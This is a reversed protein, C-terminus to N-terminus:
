RRHRGWPRQGAHVLRKRSDQIGQRDGAQHENPPRRWQRRQAQPCPLPRDLLNLFPLQSAHCSAHIPHHIRPLERPTAQHEVQPGESPVDEAADLLRQPRDEGQEGQHPRPAASQEHQQRAVGHLVQSRVERSKRAHAHLQLRRDGGHAGGGRSPQLTHHLRTDVLLGELRDHFPLHIRLTGVSAIGVHQISGESPDRVNDAASAAAARCAAQSHQIDAAAVPVHGLPPRGRPVVDVQELHVGRRGLFRPGPQTLIM